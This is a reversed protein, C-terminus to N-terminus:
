GLTRRHVRVLTSGTPPAQDVRGRQSTGVTRAPQSRSLIRAPMHALSWSRDGGRPFRLNGRGRWRGARWWRAPHLSAPRHLFPPTAIYVAQVAPSALLERYDAFSQAGGLAEAEARAADMNVDAVAVVRAETSGSFAPRMIRTIEGTGIIGIGISRASQQSTKTMM